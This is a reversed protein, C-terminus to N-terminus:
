NKTIKYTFFLIENSNEMSNRSWFYPRINEAHKNAMQIEEKPFKGNYEM